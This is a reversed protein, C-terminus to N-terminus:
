LLLSWLFIFAPLNISFRVPVRTPPPRPPRPSVFFLFLYLPSSWLWFQFHFCLTGVKRYSDITRSRSEASCLGKDGNLCKTWIAWSAAFIWQRSTVMTGNAKTPSYGLFDGAKSLWYVMVRNWMLEHSSPLVRTKRYAHLLLWHFFLFAYFFLHTICLWLHSCEIKWRCKIFICIDTNIFQFVFLM